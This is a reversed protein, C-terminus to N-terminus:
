LLEQVPFVRYGIDLLILGTDSLNQKREREHTGEAASWEANKKGKKYQIM